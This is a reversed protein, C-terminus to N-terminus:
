RDQLNTGVGRLDVRVPIGHQQLVAPPGIGSLMLLQPTNSAGGSLIVEKGARVMCREADGAAPYRDARYLRAGHLYEVAIARHQANFLVQTALANVRLDLRHLLRALVDLM